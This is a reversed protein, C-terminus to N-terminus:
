TGSSCWACLGTEELRDLTTAWGLLDAQSRQARDLDARVPQDNRAISRGYAVPRFAQSSSWAVTPDPRWYGAVAQPRVVPRAQAHQWHAVPARRFVPYRPSTYASAQARYHGFAMSAALPDPRWGGAMPRPDVLGRARPNPQGPAHNPAPRYATPQQVHPYGHYALAPPWQVTQMAAWGPMPAVAYAAYGAHAPASPPLPASWPLPAPMPAAAWGYWPAPVHRPTPRDHQSLSRWTPAPAAFAARGVSRQHETARYRPAAVAFAGRAQPQAVRPQFGYVGPRFTATDIVPAAGLAPDPRWTGGQAFAAGAPVLTTALALAAPFAIPRFAKKV